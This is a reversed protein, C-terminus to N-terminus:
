DNFIKSFGDRKKDFQANLVGVAQRLQQLSDTEYFIILTKLKLTKGCHTCKTTKTTLNVGKAHRCQPCAIVGFRM